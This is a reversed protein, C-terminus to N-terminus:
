RDEGRESLKRTLYALGPLPDSLPMLGEGVTPDALEALFGLALRSRGSSATRVTELMAALDKALYRMKKGLRYESVPSVRDGRALRYLLLPFDVGAMIPLPLSGWFRPNIEMLKFQNDSRDLRFEVMAVGRWNLSDLLRTAAEVLRPEWVSEAMTSPGGSIPYQRIRRHCFAAVQRGQASYVASMGYGPGDIYEQVLPFPQLRHMQRFTQNLQGADEVVRYRDRATLGLVDGQRYKVVAPFGVDGYRLPDPEQGPGLAITRPHPIGLQGALELLRGTDDAQQISASSALLTALELQGAEIRSAAALVSRLLVPIFVTDPGSLSAVADWYGGPDSDLCPVQVVRGYRSYGAPMARPRRGDALCTVAVGARGLSRLVALAILNHADTIIAPM